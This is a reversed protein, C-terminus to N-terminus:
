RHEEIFSQMDEPMPAEFECRAGTQPHRLTVREAHLAQRPMLLKGLMETTVGHEIFQLYLTEDPGYIKDGVIPHGLWAMHVRLQHARGTRPRLRVVSFFGPEPPAPTEAPAHRLRQVVEFETVSPKGNVADVVRRTYVAATQSVAIPQEIIGQQQELDGHCIALYQKEIERRLVAKGLIRAAREDKAVVVLGSTERDLRNIMRPTNVGQERLWAALSSQEPRQASHCVMGGPKDVALLDDDEFVIQPISIEVM